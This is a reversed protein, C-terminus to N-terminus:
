YERFEEFFYMDPSKLFQEIEAMPAEILYDIPAQGGGYGIETRPYRIRTENNKSEMLEFSTLNLIQGLKNKVLKMMIYVQLYQLGGRHVM